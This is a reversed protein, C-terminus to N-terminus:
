PNATDEPLGQHWKTLPGLRTASWAARPQGWERSMLATYSAGDFRPPSAGKALRKGSRVQHRRELERVFDDTYFGPILPSFLETELPGLYLYASFADRYSNTTSLRTDQFEDLLVQGFPGHNLPFAIPRFQLAAFASDFLGLAPRELREAGSFRVPRHQHIACVAHTGLEQRLRSGATVVPSGDYGSVDLPAHVMGVIFLGHRRDDRHARLDKLIVKAMRQDRFQDSLVIDLRDDVNRWVPHPDVLVLRLKQEPPLSRNVKWVTIFFDLMPQDPWGTLVTDRLVTILPQPDLQPSSLFQDVLAQHGWPQELYIVGVHRPFAAAEVLSANFAWYRPRHHVEGMIVLQHDALAQLVYAQPDQGEARLFSVFPELHGEPDKVPARRANEQERYRCWRSFEARAFQIGSYEGGRSDDLWQGDRLELFSAGFWAGWFNPQWRYVAARTGGHVQVELIEQNLWWRAYPAPLPQGGSVGYGLAAARKTLLRRWSEGRVIAQVRAAVTTEPTSLDAAEPFDKIKRGVQYVRDESQSRPPSPPNPQGATTSSPSSPECASVLTLLGALLFRVSSNRSHPRM